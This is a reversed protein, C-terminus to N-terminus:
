EAMVDFTVKNSTLAVEKENITTTFRLTASYTGAKSVLWRSLDRSGYALGEIRFERTEGPAIVTPNPMRFDMTMMGMYPLDVAGPGEITLHNRSTDPGYHLEVPAKGPNTFRLLLVIDQKLARGNNITMELKNDLDRDPEPQERLTEWEKLAAPLAAAQDLVQRSIKVPAGPGVLEMRLVPEACLMAPAFILTSLLRAKMPVIIVNASWAAKGLIERSNKRL